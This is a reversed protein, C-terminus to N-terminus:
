PNTEGNQFPLETWNPPFGMMEGVFRPNLQSTTGVIQRVRKTMSDQNELGTIKDGEQAQPTPLMSFKAMQKLGMQLNVGKDAYKKKDEEWKEETRASNYDYSCPTPLLGSEVIDRLKVGWRVGDKNTRFYSGNEMQVDNVCGGEVDASRPTPLLGMVAYHELYMARTEGGYTEKRKMTQEETVERPSSNPTPLMGHFSIYDIISNPRNEGNNRSYIDTAGTAKLAEVREPHDRQVATPTPLLGLSAKGSLMSATGDARRQGKWDGAIPTPLSSGYEIGETHPM